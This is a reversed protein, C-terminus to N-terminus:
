VLGDRDAADARRCQPTGDASSFQDRGASLLVTVGIPDVVGLQSAEHRRPNAQDTAIRESASVLAVQVQLATYRPHLVLKFCLQAIGDSMVRVVCLAAHQLALGGVLRLRPRRFLLPHDIRIDPFRLVSWATLAPRDLVVRM